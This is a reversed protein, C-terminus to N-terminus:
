DIKPLADFVKVEFPKLEIKFLRGKLNSTNYKNTTNNNKVDFLLFDKGTNEPLEFVKAVDVEFTKVDQSPNRL